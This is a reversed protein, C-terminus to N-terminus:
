ARRARAFSHVRQREPHEQRERREVQGRDDRDGQAHHIPVRDRDLVLVSVAECDDLFEAQLREAVAIASALRNFTIPEDRSALTGGKLHRLKRIYFPGCSM